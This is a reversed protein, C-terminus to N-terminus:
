YRLQKWKQTQMVLSLYLFKGDVNEWFKIFIKLNLRRELTVSWIEDRKKSLNWFRIKRVSALRFHGSKDFASKKKLIAVSEVCKTHLFTLFYLQLLLNSIIRIEVTMHHFMYLPLVQILTVTYITRFNVARKLFNIKLIM